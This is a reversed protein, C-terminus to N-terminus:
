IKLFIKKRFLIYVPIYCLACFALAWLLSLLEPSIGSSLLRGMVWENVSFGTQRNGWRVTLLDSFLEAILYATIANSGYARAWECWNKYQLVDIIFYLSAFLMCDIGGVYLVFSSTWLNKNLPFFWNWGNALAFAVFGALFLYIIKREATRETLLLRGVLMGGIGTAIAPVTTLLGEPDWNGQWLRGPIVRRDLWAALNKGPELIAYGYGPVPILTMAMCYGILLIAALWAQTTWRTYLFLPVCLAYVVGLRQLVGPIRYNAFDFYPVVSLLVGLAFLVGARRLTKRLMAGRAVAGGGEVGRAEAGGGAVGSAALGGGPGAGLQRSFALAISMGMIFVFSPFVFDTPTIGNWKAHELPAYVSEEIGPDNVTIMM